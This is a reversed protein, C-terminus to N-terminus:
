TPRGVVPASLLAGAVVTPVPTGVCRSAILEASTRCFRHFTEAACSPQKVRGPWILARGQRVESIAAFPPACGNAKRARASGLAPRLSM